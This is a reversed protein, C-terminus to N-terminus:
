RVVLGSVNIGKSLAKNVDNEILSALGTSVSSIAKSVGRCPRICAKM